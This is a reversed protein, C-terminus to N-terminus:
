FIQLRMSRKVWTLKSKDQAPSSVQSEPTFYSHPAAIASTDQHRSLDFM